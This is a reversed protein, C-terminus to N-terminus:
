LGFEHRLRSTSTPFGRRDLLELTEEMSRPPRRKSRQLNTVAQIVRGPALDLLLNVMGDPKVRAIGHADLVPPPFDKVNHTVILEVDAHIAAALVHRDKPDPLELGEILHEYGEVMARPQHSLMLARTRALKAPDIDPRNAVLNDFCEDLITETWHLYVAEVLGLYMLLNRPTQGYMVNADILAKIM